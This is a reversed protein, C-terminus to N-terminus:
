SRNEPSGPGAPIPLDRGLYRLVGRGAAHGTAFCAQLLYGGTPAEWDLMEGAVFIGPRAEVMMDADIGDLAVGGASSIAHALSGIGTVPLPVAKILSGLIAPDDPLTM